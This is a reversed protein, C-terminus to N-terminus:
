NLIAILFLLRSINTFNSRVAFASTDSPNVYYIGDLKRGPNEKKIRDCSAGPFTVFFLSDAM